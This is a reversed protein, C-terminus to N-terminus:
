SIGPGPLPIGLILLSCNASMAPLGLSGDEKKLFM